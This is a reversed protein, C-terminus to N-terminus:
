EESYHVGIILPTVKSLGVKRLFGEEYLKLTLDRMVDKDTIKEALEEGFESKVVKYVSSPLVIDVPFLYEESDLSVMKCFEGEVFFLTPLDEAIKEIKKFTM